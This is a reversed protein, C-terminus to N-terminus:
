ATAVGRKRALLGVGILGVALLALSGPEPTNAPPDPAIFPQPEGYGDPWSTPIYFTDSTSYGGGVASAAAALANEEATSLTSSDTGFIAWIADQIDTNGPNAFLGGGDYVSALYGLEDYDAETASLTSAGFNTGDLASLDAGATYATVNWTEGFYIENTASYCIMPAATGGNLSMEYPGIEGTPDSQIGLTDAHAASAAFLLLAPAIVTILKKV